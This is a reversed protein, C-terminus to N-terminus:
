GRVTLLVVGVILWWWWLGKEMMGEGEGEKIGAGLLIPM